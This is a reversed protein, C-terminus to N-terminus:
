RPDTDSQATHDPPTTTSSGTHCRRTASDIHATSSETPGNGPWRRSTMPSQGSRQPRDPGRDISLLNTTNYAAISIEICFAPQTLNPTAPPPARGRTGLRLAGARGTTLAGLASGTLPQAGDAPPAPPSM